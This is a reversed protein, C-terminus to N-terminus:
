VAGAYEPLARSFERPHWGLQAKAKNLEATSDQGGMLAMGEDFPLVDRLGLLKAGLAARAAISSSLGFPYLTDQGGPLHDRLLTMMVPWTLKEPGALNYIEGATGGRALAEGFAWAVDEVYVPQIEPEVRNMPGLPVRTDAQQRTFYPIFFYPPKEGNVWGKAMELFESGAGHIMSPRFITWGLGSGRVLMEAEWKTQQYESIGEHSVGLASMQLFRLGSGTISRTKSALRPEQKKMLRQCAEIASRTTEVHSKRFTQGSAERIIGILNVCAKAAGEPGMMLEDMVRADLADGEVMTVSGHGHGAHGAHGGGLSLVERAKQRDRVLGRVRYGRRALERVVYRGVFGSAGTVAVVSGAEVAQDM